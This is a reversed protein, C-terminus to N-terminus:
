PRAPAQKVCSPAFAIRTGTGHLFLRRARRGDRVDAAELALELRVEEEVRELVDFVHDLELGVLRRLHDHRERPQQAVADVPLLAEDRESFVERIRMAEEFDLFRAEAPTEHIFFLNWFFREVADHRAQNQLGDDLVGDFIALRRISGDMHGHLCPPLVAQGLIREHQGHAIVPATHLRHFALAQAGQEGARFVGRVM